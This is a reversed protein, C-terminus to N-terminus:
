KLLLPLYVFATPDGPSFEVAGSDCHAGAWRTKGRQDVLPCVRQFSGNVDRGGDILPSNGNMLPLHTPTAGGNNTLPGLKLDTDLTVLCNSDVAQNGGYDLVSGIYCNDAIATNLMDLFGVETIQLGAGITAQNQALTVNVLSVYGLQESLIGGGGTVGGNDTATNASLTSNELYLSGRNAIGGGELALNNDITSQYISTSGFNRIGGGRSGSVNRTFRTQSIVITDYSGSYLGGGTGSYNNNIQSNFINLVANTSSTGGSGIGGATVNGTNSYVTTGRLTLSGTNNIMGGGSGAVNGQVMVHNLNMVANAGDNYLGGGGFIAFSTSLTRNNVVQGGNMTFLGSNYVGGGLADATSTTVLNSGITVGTLTIVDGSDNYIAGGATEATNSLFTSNSLLAVGYNHLAGGGDWTRNNILRSNIIVLTGNNEIAGSSLGSVPSAYGNALTINTLTLTKNNFIQFLPTTNNGSLTIVGGGDITTDDSIQKYLSFNITKPGGCSFNILGGGVLANNFDNETCSGSVTGGAQAPHAVALLVTIAILGVTITIWLSRVKSKM